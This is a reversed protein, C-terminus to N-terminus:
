LSQGLGRGRCCAPGQGGVWGVQLLGVDYRLPVRDHPNGAVLFGYDMLLFDNSLPGYSLLLPEGEAIQPLPPRPRVCPSEGRAPAAPACGSALEAHSGRVSTGGHRPLLRPSALECALQGTAYTLPHGADCCSATAGWPHTKQPPSPPPPCCSVHKKAVLAIGGGKSPLVECNPDFSHNCMDVLPLMAAPQSPGRTRFARSSVVALAWGLANIEVPAGFPDAGTGPLPALV